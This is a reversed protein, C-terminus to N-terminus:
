QEGVYHPERKELFARAAEHFDPHLSHEATRARDYAAHVNIITDLDFTNKLSQKAYRLAFPPYKSLKSALAFAREYLNDPAVLEHIFGIRYLESAPVTDGTLIMYKIINRPLSYSAEPAGGIVGVKIEPMGFKADEVSYVIDAGLVASFGAGVATGNCACIVPKPCHFVAGVGANVASIYEDSRAGSAFDNVDNGASFFKKGEARLLVTQIEKDEAVLRFAEALELYMQRNFANIPTRNLTVVGVRQKREFGIFDM